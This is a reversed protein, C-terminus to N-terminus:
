VVKFPAPEFNCLQSDSLIGFLGNNNADEKYVWSHDLFFFLLSGIRHIPFFWSDDVHQIWKVEVHESQNGSAITFYNNCVNCFLSTTAQLSFGAELEDNYPRTM